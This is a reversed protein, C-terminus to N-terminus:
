PDDDLPRPRYDDLGNPPPVSVERLKAIAANVCADVAEKARASTAEGGFGVAAEAFRPGCLWRM